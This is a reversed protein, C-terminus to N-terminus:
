AAAQRRGDHREGDRDHGRGDDLGTRLLAHAAGDVDRDMAGRMVLWMMLEAGESGFM